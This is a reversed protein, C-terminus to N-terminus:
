APARSRGPTPREASVRGSELEDALRELTRAFRHRLWRRGGLTLLARDLPGAREVSAALRVRTSELHGALSWSVRARTRSGIEATGIILRPPRVAAVRTRATRRLGLPGHVRVEGGDVRGDGGTHLSVVDFREAVIWHNELDALFDFVAECPADVLATAEVDADREADIWAV